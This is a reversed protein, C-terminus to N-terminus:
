GTELEDDVEPQREHRQHLHAFVNEAVEQWDQHGAEFGHRVGAVFPRAEEHAGLGVDHGLVFGDDYDHKDHDDLGRKYAARERDLARQDDDKTAAVHQQVLGRLEALERTRAALKSRLRQIEGVPGNM